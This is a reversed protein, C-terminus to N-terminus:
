AHRRLRGPAVCARRGPAQDRRAEALRLAERAAITALWPGFPRSRDFRGLARFARELAIQTADDARSRDGLVAYAAKWARAHHRQVLTDAAVRDGDLAATVLAGDHPHHGNTNM